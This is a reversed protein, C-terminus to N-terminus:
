ASRLGNSVARTRKVFQGYALVVAGALAVGGIRVFWFYRDIFGDGSPRHGWVWGEYAAVGGIVTIVFAALFLWRERERHGICWAVLADYRKWQFRLLLLWFGYQLLFHLDDNNFAVLWAGYDAAFGSPGNLALACWFLYDYLYPDHGNARWYSEDIVLGYIGVALVLLANLRIINRISM